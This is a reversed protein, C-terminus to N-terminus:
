AAASLKFDFQIAEYPFAVGDPTKDLIGANVLKTVDTHVGKVDRGVLAAVERISLPGRGAMAQVLELRKPSLVQYVRDYSPFGHVAEREIPLGADIRKAKARLSAFAEDTSRIKIKLTKM